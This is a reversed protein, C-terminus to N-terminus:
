AQPIAGRSKALAKTSLVHVIVQNKAPLERERDILLKTGVMLYGRAAALAV